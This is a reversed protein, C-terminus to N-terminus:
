ADPRKRSRGPPLPTWAARSRRRASAATSRPFPDPPSSRRTGRASRFLTAASGARDPGCEPFFPSSHFGTVFLPTWAGVFAAVPRGFGVAAEAFGATEFPREEAAVHPAPPRLPRGQPVPTVAPGPTGLHLPPPKRRRVRRM